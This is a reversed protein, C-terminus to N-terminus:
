VHEQQFCYHAACNEQHARQGFAASTSRCIDAVALNWDFAIHSRGNGNSTPCPPSSSSM